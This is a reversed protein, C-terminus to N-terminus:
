VPKRGTFIEYVIGVLALLLLIQILNGGLSFAAGGLYLVLLILVLLLIM